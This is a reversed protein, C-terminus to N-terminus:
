RPRAPPEHGCGCSGRRILKTELRLEVAEGQSGSGLRQFLLNAAAVGLEYAPQAVVTLPPTLLAAWPMDDFGIVGVQQPIRIGQENLVQLAGTTMLNNSAFIADPPSDLQLLESAARRGGELSFDSVKILEEHFPLGAEEIAQRYGALREAGTTLATPGAIIAIRRYGHWALHLVAQRAGEANRTLVADASVADHRRDAFVVPIGSEITRLVDRHDPGSVSFIIGDVRKSRLLRLYNREKEPDEESNCLILSFGQQHASDEIGRVVEAFFPNTIDSVLTGITLTQRVRLSRALVNPEYGLQRVAALVRARLEPSVNTKNNLVRSVTATSVDAERAIDKVKPM